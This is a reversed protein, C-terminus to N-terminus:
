SDQARVVQAVEGHNQPHLYLLIKKKILALISYLKLDAKFGM